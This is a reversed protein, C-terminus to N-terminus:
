KSIISLFGKSLTNTIKSLSLIIRSLSQVPINDYRCYKIIYTLLKDLKEDYSKNLEMIRKNVIYKFYKDNDSIRTLNFNSVIYDITTPSTRFHKRIKM